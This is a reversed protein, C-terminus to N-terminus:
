GASASLNYSVPLGTQHILFDAISKQRNFCLTFIVRIFNNQFCLKRNQLGTKSFFHGGAHVASYIQRVYSLCSLASWGDYSRLSGKSLMGPVESTAASPKACDFVYWASCAPLFVTCKIDFLHPSTLCVFLRCTRLIHFWICALQLLLAQHRAAAFFKVGLFLFM